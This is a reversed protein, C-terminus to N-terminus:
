TPSSCFSRTLAAYATRTSNQWLGKGQVFFHNRSPLTVLLQYLHGGDAWSQM